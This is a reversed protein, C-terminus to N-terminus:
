ILTHRSDFWVTRDAACSGTALSIADTIAPNYGGLPPAKDFLNDVGFRLGIDETLQYGGNLNFLNYSPWGVNVSPAPLDLKSYYQWQLALRVCGLRLRANDACPVQVPEPEPRERGPRHHRRIRPDSGAPVAALERLRDPLQFVSNLTVTGPVALGM